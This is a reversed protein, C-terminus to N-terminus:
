IMGLSRNFQAQRYFLTCYQNMRVKPAATHNTRQHGHHGSPLAISIHSGSGAFQDVSLALKEPM